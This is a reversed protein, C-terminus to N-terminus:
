RFPNGFNLFSWIGKKENKKKHLYLEHALRILGKQNLRILWSIATKNGSIADTFAALERHGSRLLWVKATEQGSASDITAALHRFGNEMLWKFSKEIGEYADWFEVWERMDHSILWQRSEKDEDKILLILKDYAEEPYYKM